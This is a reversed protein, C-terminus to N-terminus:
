KKTDNPITITIIARATALHEQMREHVAAERAFKIVMGSLFLDSVHTKFESTFEHIQDVLVVVEQDTASAFPMKYREQLYDKLLATLELYLAYAQEPTEVTKKSLQELRAFAKQWPTVNIKRRKYARWVVYLIACVILFVGISCLIMFTRTQWWPTHWCEYIDYLELQETNKVM